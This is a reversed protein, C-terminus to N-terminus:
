GTCEGDDKQCLEGKTVLAQKGRKGTYIRMEARTYRKSFWAGRGPEMGKANSLETALEETQEWWLARDPLEVGLRVIDAESKLFCGDCNGLWNRGDVMPLRLDFPQDRWFSMVDSKTVCATALPHWVTWRDRQPKNLRKPEDARFGVANTWRDWGISRLYRKATLTKMEVTCFRAQVNPLFRRAFILAVFPEGDRAASNHNVETFGRADPVWWEVLRSAYSEGFIRAILDRRWSELARRPRYELWTINVGWRAGVERVFDLTEPMERGTNQFTVVARDPITGDHADLIQRLLYASTRGGSFAIQVNGPPLRYPNPAFLDAGVTGM